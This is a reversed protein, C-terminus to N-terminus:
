LVNRCGVGCRCWAPLLRFQLISFARRALLPPTPGQISCDGESQPSLQEQIFELSRKFAQDILKRDGGWLSHGGGEITILEHAVGHRQLERAMAVSQEVPVDNDATGHLFLTPPYNPSVNRIACLPTLKERETEPDFGSVANVWRGTQKLYLLFTARGRGNEQNTNALV